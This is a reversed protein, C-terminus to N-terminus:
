RSKRRPRSPGWRYFVHGLIVGLPLCYLISTGVLTLVFLDPNTDMARRFAATIHNSEVSDSLTRWEIFGLWGTALLPTALVFVLTWVYSWGRRRVAPKLVSRAQLRSNSKGM